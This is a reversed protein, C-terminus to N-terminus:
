YRNHHLTNNSSHFVIRFSAICCFLAGSQQHLRILIIIITEQQIFIDTKYNFLFSKYLLNLLHSALPFQKVGVCPFHPFLLNSEKGYKISYLFLFIIQFDKKLLLATGKKAQTKSRFTNLLQESKQSTPLHQKHNSM